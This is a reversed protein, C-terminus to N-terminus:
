SGTFLPVVKDMYLSTILGYSWKVGTDERHAVADVFIVFAPLTVFTSRMYSTGVHKFNFM